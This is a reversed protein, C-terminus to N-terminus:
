FCDIIYGESFSANCCLSVSTCVVFLTQKSCDTNELWHWCLKRITEVPIERCTIKSHTKDCVCMYM